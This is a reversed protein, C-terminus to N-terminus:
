LISSNNNAVICEFYFKNENYLEELNIVFYVYFMIKCLFICMVPYNKECLREVM